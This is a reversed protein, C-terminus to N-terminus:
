SNIISMLNTACLQVWRHFYKIFLYVEHLVEHMCHLIWPPVRAALCLCTASNRMTELLTVSVEDLELMADIGFFDHRCCSQARHEYISRIWQIGSGFQRRLLSMLEARDM